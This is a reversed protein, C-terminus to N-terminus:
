AAKPIITFPLLGGRSASWAEYFVQRESAATTMADAQSQDPATGDALNDAAITGNGVEVVAAHPTPRATRGVEAIVTSYNASALTANAAMAAAISGSVLPTAMSTGSLTANSLLGNEGPTRAVVTMGPAAVDVVEQGAVSGDIPQAGSVQSFYASWATAPRSGNTAGVAIVGPVDAPSAVGPSRTARSNGAATVVVVGADHADAIADVLAGSYVPSGLSLSLVDVKQDAAYRIAAAIDSTSGQGDDALAKLCLVTANPVVGDHVTGSANAAIASAVWTGHGNGDEIAAFDDGSVNVSENSLFSKSDNDIRMTSGETGNGFVQGAPEAVNCGTDVVAVTINAGTASVNDAGVAARVDAMTTRSADADFAVGETPYDPDNIALRGITPPEFESTNQLTDVPEVLELRYNVHVAEVYGADALPDTGLADLTAGPDATAIDLLAGIGGTVFYRPASVTATHAGADTRILERDASANAWNEVSDTANADELELVFSPHGAAGYRVIEPRDTDRDLLQAHAPATSGLVVVVAVLVPLWRRSM